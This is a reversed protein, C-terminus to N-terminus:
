RVPVRSLKDYISRKIKNHERTDIEAAILMDAIIAAAKWTSTQSRLAERFTQEAFLSVWKTPRANPLPPLEAKAFHQAHRKLQILEDLKDSWVKKERDTRPVGKHLQDSYFDFAEEFYEALKRYKKRDQHAEKLGEEWTGDPDRACRCLGSAIVNYDIREPKPLDRQGIEVGYRDLTSIVIRLADERYLM